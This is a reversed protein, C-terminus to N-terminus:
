IDISIISVIVNFLIYAHSVSNDTLIYTDENDSLIDIDYINKNYM